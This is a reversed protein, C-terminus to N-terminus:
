LEDVLDQIETRTKYKVYSEDYLKTSLTTRQAESLQSLSPWEHPLDEAELRDVSYSYFGNKGKEKSVVFYLGLDNLTKRKNVLKKYEKQIADTPDSSAEWVLVKNPASLDVVNFFCVPKPKDGIDCMPCEGEEEQLCWEAKTVPKGDPGDYKLWHRLAYTFNEEELFAIVVADDQVQLTTKNLGSAAKNYGGFGRRQPRGESASVTNSEERPTGTNRM